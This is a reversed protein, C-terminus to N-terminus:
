NAAALQRVLANFMTVARDHSSPIFQPQDIKLMNNYQAEIIVRDEEFALKAVAVMGDRDAETGHDRHTGTSFFYRAKGKDTPTVAQSTVAWARVAENMDPPGDPGYRKASGLPFSGNQMILIGPLLFEYCLWYDILPQDAPLEGAKGESSPGVTNEIWRSIRVGRELKKIRPPEVAFDEPSGFSKAHVYHVHSFDLLNDCILSAEADYDVFSGGLLFRDDAFGFADPILAPDAREPKGMWLWVWSDKEVVPYRRVVAQPPIKDQGPIAVTEGQPSILFGHYMCRLNKGECRGLSLPALRHPCRDALAWVAGDADRWIVIPEGLISIPLPKEEALDHSWSAVYWCDKVYLM